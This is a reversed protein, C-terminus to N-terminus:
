HHVFGMGTQLATRLVESWISGNGGMGGGQHSRVSYGPDDDNTTTAMDAPGRSACAALLVFLAVAGTHKVIGPEKPHTTFTM